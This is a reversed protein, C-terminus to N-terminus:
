RRRETLRDVAASVPLWLVGVVVVLVLVTARGYGDTVVASAVVMGIVFCIAVTVATKAGV